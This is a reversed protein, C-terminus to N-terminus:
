NWASLQSVLAQMEGKSSVARARDLYAQREAETLAAFREMAGPDQALAFGFGLPVDGKQM